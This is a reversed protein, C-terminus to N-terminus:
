GGDFHVETRLVESAQDTPPETRESKMLKAPPEDLQSQADLHNKEKVVSEIVIGPLRQLRSLL